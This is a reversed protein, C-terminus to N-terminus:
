ALRRFTIETTNKIFITGNKDIDFVVNKFFQLQQILESLTPNWIKNDQIKQSLYKFNEVVTSNLLNEKEFLKGYHHKMDVSFYTHGIFLGNDQILLDINKKSLGNIFDVMEITQFISFANNVIQHNFLIPSYKAVKFPNYKISNWIILSKSVMLFVPVINKILNLLEIPNKSKVLNRVASISDIYNRIRNEDNDYHFIIAKILKILKVKFSFNNISKWYKALTFQSPNLQNIIGNATIGCDIYNWLTQINNKEIVAEFDIDSLNNNKYFSLNYPQFGHDIWVPIDNLPPIFNKFDVFSEEISKISQSLSHYCLEHGEKIWLKLEDSNKEWSANDNRKSFHNLFFGKTVKINLDKFFERQIKLNELTDYDCHDTFCAIASFPIASRSIEIANQKSFLLSIKEPLIVEHHASIIKKTNNEGSYQTIPKSFEPNFKWILQYPNEKKVEWIGININPQVFTGDELKLIKSTYEPAIRDNFVDVWTYDHNRFSIIPSNLIIEIDFSNSKLIFDKNLDILIKNLSTENYTVVEKFLPSVILISKVINM